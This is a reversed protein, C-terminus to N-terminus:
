KSALSPRKYGFRAAKLEEVIRELRSVWAELDEPVESAYNEGNGETVHDRARSKVDETDTVSVVDTSENQMDIERTNQIDNQKESFKLSEKIALNDEKASDRKVLNSKPPFGLPVPSNDAEKMLRLSLPLIQSHFGISASADSLEKKINLTLLPSNELGKCSFSAHILSGDGEKMKDLRRPKANVTTIFNRRKTTKSRKATIKPWSFRDIKKMTQVRELMRRSGAFSRKVRKSRKPNIESTSFIHLRPLVARSAVQLRSLSQKWWDLYRTTVDAKYLRSPVYLKAYSIPRCYDSWAVCPTKNARDVLAPLDQDMGFQMAVRHPHYQESNILNPKPRLDIFREWAWIQVLQFPSRLTVSLKSDDDEWHDIEILAVINEKLLNLDRYISALLAPALAIRTGRALHVALPFISKVVICFFSPFVYRSLWLALFAEHEIKSGSDMFENMWASHEAKGHTSRDLKKRVQNLKKETEKLEDTQLPRFVPSGLVSYGPIMMDELTITAEGWPFIFSKTEPCWKEALGLVLDNNKRIAYKSNLIAEHIGAKKWTSEHLAAMKGVWAQWKRQPLRWGHFKVDLPRNRPAFTKPITNLCHSPLEFVPGHISNINHKLFHAVRKTPNGGGTLSVMMEERVEFGDDASEEM